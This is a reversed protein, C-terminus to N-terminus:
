EPEQLAFPASAVPTATERTFFAATAASFVVLYPLFKPSAKIKLFRIDNM